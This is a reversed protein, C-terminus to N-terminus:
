QTTEKPLPEVVRDADDTENGVYAESESATEHRPLCISFSSGQGPESWVKVEGGHSAAVHKVISLGLGTGGTTRARAPDVRYFREFIREIEAQPIGIGRDTVTIQVRSDKAAAVVAVRSGEPSYAVANEVLNSVAALIQDPEGLVHLDGDTRGRLSIQKAEADTRSREIASDVLEAIDVDVPEDVLEDAQLRSLEIIQQVLRNLRESEIQIRGAFREVAGPDDKAEAVAEALLNMAGIPTKLEHSVNAVFDRRIAEVRRERTRDDVLVLVLKSSLPAVRAVLHMPLASRNRSLTLEAQRVEGDRRVKRVLEVLDDHALRDDHVIGIAYAPASAKVITDDEDLVVTSSRLVSLVSEVGAPITPTPGDPIERQSRESLRWVLAVGVGLVAGLLGVLVLQVDTSM